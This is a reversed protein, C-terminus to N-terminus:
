WNSILQYYYIGLYDAMNSYYHTSLEVNHNMARAQAYLYIDNSYKFVNSCSLFTFIVMFTSIDHHLRFFYFLHLQMEFTIRM